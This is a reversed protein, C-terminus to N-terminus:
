ADAIATAITAVVSEGVASLAAPDKMTRAVVFAGEISSVVLMALSTAKAPAIGTETLIDTFLDVWGQFVEAATERLPEHTNAVERAVTGIPCPDIFDTEVLLEAVGAFADALGVAPTAGARVVIEVFQGYATGSTRLVEATLEEKGGPFFHYISGTTAEAALGIEKLSTGNYGKRRFLENTATLIRDRTAASSTTEAM